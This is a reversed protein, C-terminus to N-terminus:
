SFSMDLAFRLSSQDFGEAMAIGFPPYMPSGSRPRYPGIKGL